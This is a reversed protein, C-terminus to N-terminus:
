REVNTNVEVIAIRWWGQRGDSKDVILKKPSGDRTYLYTDTALDYEAGLETAFKVLAKEAERRSQFEALEVM